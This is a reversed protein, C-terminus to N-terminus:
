LPWSISFSGSPRRHQSSDHLFNTLTVDSVFSKTLTINSIIFIDCEMLGGIWDVIVKRRSYANQDEGPCELLTLILTNRNSLIVKM